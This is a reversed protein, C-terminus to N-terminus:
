VVSLPAFKYQGGWKLRSVGLLTIPLCLLGLDSVVYRSTQDPDVSNSNFVPIGIFCLLLLLLLLGFFFFFFFFCVGLYQFYVPVFLQPIIITM